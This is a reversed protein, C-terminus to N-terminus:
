PGHGFKQPPEPSRTGGTGAPCGRGYKTLKQDLQALDGTVKVHEFGHHSNYGVWVLVELNPICHNDEITM